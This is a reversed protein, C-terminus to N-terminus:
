CLQKRCAQSNPHIQNEMLEQLGYGHHDNSIHMRLMDLDCYKSRKRYDLFDKYAGWMMVWKHDPHDKAPELLIHENKDFDEEYKADDEDMPEDSERNVAECAFHPYAMCIYEHATITEQQLLDTDDASCLDIICVDRAYPAKMHPTSSEPKQEQTSASENESTKQKKAPHMISTKERRYRQLLYLLPLLAFISTYALFSVMIHYRPPASVRSIDTRLFRSELSM